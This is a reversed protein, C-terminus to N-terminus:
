QEKQNLQIELWQKLHKLEFQELFWTWDAEREEERKAAIRLAVRRNEEQVNYKPLCDYPSIYCERMYEDEEIAEEHAEELIRRREKEVAHAREHEEAIRRLQNAEAGLEDNRKIRLEVMEDIFDKM